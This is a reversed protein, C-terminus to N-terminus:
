SMIVAKGFNIKSNQSVIDHFFKLYLITLAVADYEWFVNEKSLELYNNSRQRASELIKSLGQLRGVFKNYFAIDQLM